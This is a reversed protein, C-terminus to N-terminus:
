GSSNEDSGPVEGPEALVRLAAVACRVVDGITAPKSEATWQQEPQSEDAIESAGSSHLKM